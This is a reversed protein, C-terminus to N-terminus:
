VKGLPMLAWAWRNSGAEVTQRPFFEKNSQM